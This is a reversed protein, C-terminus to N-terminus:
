TLESIGHSCPAFGEKKAQDFTDPVFYVRYKKKVYYLMCEPNMTALHHVVMPSKDGM